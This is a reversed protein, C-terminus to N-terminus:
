EATAGYSQLQQKRAAANYKAECEYPHGPGDQRRNLIPTASTLLPIIAIFCSISAISVLM